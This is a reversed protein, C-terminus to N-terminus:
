FIDDSTDNINRDNQKIIFKEPKRYKQADILRKKTQKETQSQRATINGAHDQKLPIM